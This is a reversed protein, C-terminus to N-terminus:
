RAVVRRLVGALDQAGGTGTYAVRGAGDVVVVYSTTPALYARTSVGEEDYLTRFPPHHDELYRRVRAPTQNITVNVGFFEVRDGFETHAKRVAPLLQECVECWTAWFELLVPKKGLYDALNVPTGDLDRVTVAPARSGVVIGAEQALIPVATCWSMTVMAALGLAWRQRIV